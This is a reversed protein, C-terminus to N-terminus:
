ASGGAKTRRIAYILIAASGVLQLAMSIVRAIAAGLLGGKPILLACAILTTLGVALFLPLQPRFYRAATMGYGLFSAVYGLGAAAMLWPFVDAHEAYEPRYLLTLIQRGAFVVAVIGPVGLLAGLCVLKWMLSTFAAKNGAAYLKALRPTASQGLAGVVTTGAVMLYSMAAFIGLGREGSYHEIFYRPINTNLSILLMVLGLPLALWVLKVMNLPVWRPRLREREQHDQVLPDEETHPSRNLVLAGSRIDYLLLVAVWSIAMCIAGVLLSGSLYIGTGLAVLSLLGKISKSIAIRDMRERQQLLSFLIDSVSESAKALGVVFVVLATETRYGSAVVIGLIFLIALSTTILRLGLYDGFRYTRRADTAQVDSTQLNTFLLVPATIALALAFQGVMAPSGLKALVVLMGWQCGAYIANGVFTWAFNTRLPLSGVPAQGMLTKLHRAVPSAMQGDTSKASELEKSAV